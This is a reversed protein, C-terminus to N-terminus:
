EDEQAEQAEASAESELMARQYALEAKNLNIWLEACERLILDEKTIRMFEGKM